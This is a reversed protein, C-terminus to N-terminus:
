WSGSALNTYFFSLLSGCLLGLSLAFSLIESSRAQMKATNPVLNSAHIFATSILAGSSVAFLFQVSLSFLDSPIAPIVSKNAACLLFLGFFGGRFLAFVVLKTSLGTITHLAAREALLRGTLDGLNFIVFTTPIYLDNSLRALPHQSECQHISKLSSTWAPFIALTVLFVLFICAAPGKVKNWVLTTPGALSTFLETEIEIDNITDTIPFPSQNFPFDSIDSPSEVVLGESIDQIPEYDNLLKRRQYKDIENYGIICTGLVLSGLFFYVFTPWDVKTYPVCTTTININSETVDILQGLAGCQNTWFDSPDGFVAALFQAGSVAVGGMAQGSFFHAIAENHPFRNATGVVGATAVAVMIGCIALSAIMFIYFVSAPIVPFFVLIALSGFVVLYILLPLCVMYWTHNYSAEEKSLNTILPGDLTTPVETTTSTQQQEQFYRDQVTQYTIMLFLSLVSSSNFVSSILVEINGQVANKSCTRSEFYPKASIFANWPVLLGLGLLSFVFRLFGKSTTLQERGRTSSRSTNDGSISEYTSDQPAM